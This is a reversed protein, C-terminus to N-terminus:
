ESKYKKHSIKIEYLCRPKTQTEVGNKVKSEFVQAEIARCLYFDFVVVVVVVVVFILLTQKVLINTTKPFHRLHFLQTM